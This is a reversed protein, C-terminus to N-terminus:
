WFRIEPWCYHRYLELFFLPHVYVIHPCRTWIIIVILLLCHHGNCQHSIIFCVFIDFLFCENVFAFIASLWQKLQNEILSTTGDSGIQVWRIQNSEIQNSDLIVKTPVSEETDYLSEQLCCLICLRYCLSIYNSQQSKSIEPTKATSSIKKVFQSGLNWWLGIEKMKPMQLCIRILM